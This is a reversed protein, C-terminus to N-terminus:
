YVAITRRKGLLLAEVAADSQQLDTWAFNRGTFAYYQDYWHNINSSHGVNNDKGMFWTNNGLDDWILPYDARDGIITGNFNLEGELSDYLVVQNEDLIRIGNPAQSGVVKWSMVQYFAAGVISETIEYNIFNSSVTVSDFTEPGFISSEPGYGLTFYRGGPPAETGLMAGTDCTVSSSFISVNNFVAISM